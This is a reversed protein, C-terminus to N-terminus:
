PSSSAGAPFSREAAWAARSSVLSLAVLAFVLGRSCTVGHRGGEGRAEIIVGATGHGLCGRPKGATLLIIHMGAQVASYRCGRVRARNAVGMAPRAGAAPQAVAPPLSPPCPNAPSRPPRHCCPGSTSRRSSPSWPRRPRRPLRRRARRRARAPPRGAGPIFLPDAPSCELTANGGIDHVPLQRPVRQGRRLHRLLVLRRRGAARLRQRRPLHGHGRNCEITCYGGPWGNAETGCLGYVGGACDLRRRVACRRGGHGHGLDHVGEQHRRRRRLVRLGRRPLQRQDHLGGPLVRQRRLPEGRSLPADRRVGPLLLGGQRRQRRPTAPASGAAPATPWSPAPRAPSAAASPWRACQTRGDGDRDYCEYSPTRCENNQHLGQRV